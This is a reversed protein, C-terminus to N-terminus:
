HMTKRVLNPTLGPSRVKYYRGLRPEEAAPADAGRARQAALAAAYRKALRDATDAEDEAIGRLVAMPSPVAAMTGNAYVVDLCDFGLTWFEARDTKADLFEITDGNVLHKAYVLVKQDGFFLQAMADQILLQQDPAVILDHRNMLAGARILVPSADDDEELRHVDIKRLTLAGVGRAIIRDGVVLSEVPREGNLTLIQTGHAFGGLRRRRGKQDNSAAEAANRDDPM